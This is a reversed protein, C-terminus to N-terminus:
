WAAGVPLADTLMFRELDELLQQTTDCWRAHQSNPTLRLLWAGSATRRVLLEAGSASHVTVYKGGAPSNKPLDALVEM